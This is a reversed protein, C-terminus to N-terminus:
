DVIAYDYRATRRYMEVREKDVDYAGDWLPISADKWTQDSLYRTGDALNVECWIHYGRFDNNSSNAAGSALRSDIGAYQLLLHELICQHRCVGKKIKVLEGLPFRRNTADLEHYRASDADPNHEKGKPYKMNQNAYDMLAKICAKQRRTIEKASMKSLSGDTPLHTEIIPKATELFGQLAEDTDINITVDSYYSSQAKFWHPNNARRIDALAMEKTHAEGDPTTYAVTYIGQANFGTIEAELVRSPTSFEEGEEQREEVDPMQWSIDIKDGINYNSQLPYKRINLSDDTRIDLAGDAEINARFLIDRPPKDYRSIVGDSGQSYVGVVQNEDSVSYLFAEHAGDKGTALVEIQHDPYQERLVAIAGEGRVSQEAIVDLVEVAERARFGWRHAQWEHRVSDRNVNNTVSEGVRSSFDAMSLTEGNLKCLPLERGELSFKAIRELKNFDFLTKDPWNSKYQEVIEHFKQMAESHLAGGHHEAVLTLARDINEVTMTSLLHSNLIHKISESDQPSLQLGNWHPPEESLGKLRPALSGHLEEMKTRFEDHFDNYNLKGDPSSDIRDQYDKLSTELISFSAESLPKLPADPTDWRNPFEASQLAAINLMSKHLQGMAKEDRVNQLFGKLSNAQSETLPFGGFNPPNGELEPMVKSVARQNTINAVEVPADKAFSGYVYATQGHKEVYAELNKFMHSFEESDWKQNYDINMKSWNDMGKLLNEVAAGKKAFTLGSLGFLVAEGKIDRNWGSGEPLKSNESRMADFHTLLEENNEPKELNQLRQKQADTLNAKELGRFMLSKILPSNAKETMGLISDITEPSWDSAIESLAGMSACEAVVRRYTGPIDTPHEMAKKIGTVLKDELTRKADDSLNSLQDPRSLGWLSKLMENSPQDYDLEVRKGNSVISGDDDIGIESGDFNPAPLLVPTATNQLQLLDLYNYTPAATANIGPTDSGLPQQRDIRGLLKQLVQQQDNDNLDIGGQGTTVIAKKLENFLTEAEEQTVGHEEIQQVLTNAEEQSLKQDVLADLFFRRISDPNNQIPM